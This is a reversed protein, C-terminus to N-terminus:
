SLYSSRHCSIFSYFGNIKGEATSNYEIKNEIEIMGFRYLMPYIYSVGRIDGLDKPRRVVEGKMELAHHFALVVSSWALTKSEKRRDVLLEKNYSGDKGIKLVYSFPLGSVTCFPYKQFAVVAEWLTDETQEERLRRVASERLGTIEQIQKLEEATQKLEGTEEYSEAAVALLDQMIKDANYDPKKRPRPM